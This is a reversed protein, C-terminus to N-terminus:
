EHFEVEATHPVDQWFLNNNIKRIKIVIRDEYHYVNIITGDIVHKKANKRRYEYRLTIKKGIDLGSLTLINRKEQSQM